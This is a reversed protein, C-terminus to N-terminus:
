KEILVSSKVDAGAESENELWGRLHKNLWDVAKERDRGKIAELLPRHDYIYFSSPVKDKVLNIKNFFTLWLYTLQSLVPNRAVEILKRHFESGLASIDASPEQKLKDEIQSILEELTQIDRESAREIALEVVRKELIFRVDALDKIKIDKVSISFLIQMLLSQNSFQKIYTGGGAKREVLGLIELAKVSERVTGRSVGFGIELEKESPFKDGPKLNSELIYEQLNKCIQMALNQKEVPKIPM